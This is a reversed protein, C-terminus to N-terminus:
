GVERQREAENRKGVGKARRLLRAEKSSGGREAGDLGREGLGCLQLIFGLATPEHVEAGLHHRNRSGAKLRAFLGKGLCGLLRDLIEVL